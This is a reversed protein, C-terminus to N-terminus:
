ATAEAAWIERPSPSVALAGFAQRRLEVLRTRYRDVSAAKVHGYGRIAQPAAALEVLADLRGDPAAPAIEDLLGEFGDRLEREMRREATYGFVDLPGGRLGKFAALLPMLALV